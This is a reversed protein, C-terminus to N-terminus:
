KMDLVERVSVALEFRGIPKMLYKKIGARLADEESIMSSYGTCLIVPMDPRIELIERVLESGTLRPMTQDTILLDYTAPASKFHELTQESSVFTTVKYGLQDLITQYLQVITEEDDVVLIHEDGMPLAEQLQHDAVFDQASYIPFYVRFTSGKGPTSEVRIFGRCREVIGHVVALGFGCGEGFERTTYYPEYIRNLIEPTMGCGTDSVKLEVFSGDYGGPVGLVDTEQLEVNNLTVTLIGKEKEMAHLANTCLNVIIQHINTPNALITGCDSRITAQIEITAPLSARMLKLSEKIIHAPQLQILEDQKKSSFTLIQQVLEKARHAATIIQNINNPTRSPENIDAQMLEAYGLIATLINNFDHAIGGALTGIAEMKTTQLLEAEMKKHVTIDKTIHVIQHCERNENFLPFCNIQFTQGLTDNTVIASHPTHFNFTDMEPCYSCPKNNSQFLEYWYRGKLEGPKAHFMDHAAKNARLIKMNRDQITIIDSIADFTQEWENESKRLSSELEKLASIDTLAIRFQGSKGDVEETISSELLAHFESGDKKLMCLECTQKARTKLLAKRFHYFIHQDDPIINTSFARKLLRNRDGAFMDAATLNMELILGNEDITLYGVPAFDYLDTYRRRSQELEIQTQRLDENQIELEIQYTQLEHVLKRTREVNFESTDTDGQEQLWSTARKRLENFKDPSIRNKTPM